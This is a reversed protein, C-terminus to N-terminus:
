QPSLACATKKRLCASEGLLSTQLAAFDALRVEDAEDSVFPGETPLLIHTMLVSGSARFCQSDQSQM